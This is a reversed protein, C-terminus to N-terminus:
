KPLLKAFPLRSKRAYISPKLADAIEVAGDPKAMSVESDTNFFEARRLRLIGKSIRGDERYGWGWATRVEFRLAILQGIKNFCYETYTAWDESPEDMRIFATGDSGTWVKSSDLLKYKRRAKKAAISAGLM